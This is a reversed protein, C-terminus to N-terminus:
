YLTKLIHGWMLIRYMSNLEGIKYGYGAQIQSFDWAKSSQGYVASQTQHDHISGATVPPLASGLMVGAVALSTITMFCKKKKM